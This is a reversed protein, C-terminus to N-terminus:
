RKTSWGMRELAALVSWPADCGMGFRERIDARLRASTLASLAPYKLLEAVAEEHRPHKSQPM